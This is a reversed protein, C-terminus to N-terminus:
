AEPFAGPLLRNAAHIPFAPRLPAKHGDSVLLGANLLKSSVARAMSDGLGLLEPVRGREVEGALLAERLLRGSHKHLRGARAEEACYAEIRKSLNSLDLLGAMFRVQDLCVELFFVCFDTLAAQSLVGRGDLAGQRPGDAAALLRKYDQVRRALGRAVSWLGDGLGLRVCTAHSALRAVRGNGDLFPHIWLLRHHAAGLAAVQRLKSLAAPGYVEAYRDLFRPLVEPPPPVHRGVRVGRERLAGPLVELREGTDPDVVFRLEEPLLNIFEAHLWSLYAWSAPPAERVGAPEENRGIMGQVAIHAVAELQLDRQSADHSFDKRLAREIELPRTDHGEILNSYYCNMSRVLEAISRRVLPHVLGALKGAEDILEFALDELRRAPESPLLPEM